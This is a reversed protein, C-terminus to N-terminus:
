PLTEHHISNGLLGVQSSHVWISRGRTGSNEKDITDTSHLNKNKDLQTTGGQNQLPVDTDGYTVIRKRHIHSEM